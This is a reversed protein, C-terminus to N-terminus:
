NAHLRCSGLDGMSSWVVVNSHRESQRCPQPFAIDVKTHALYRLRRVTDIYPMSRPNQRVKRMGITLIWGSCFVRSKM